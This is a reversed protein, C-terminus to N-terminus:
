QGKIGRAWAIVDNAFWRRQGADKGTPVFSAPFDKRPLVSLKVTSVAMKMWAAIDEQDWLVPVIMASVAEAFRVAAVKLEEATDLQGIATSFEGGGVEPSLLPGGEATAEDTRSTM